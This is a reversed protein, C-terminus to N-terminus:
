AVLAPNVAGMTRKPVLLPAAAILTEAVDDTLEYRRAAIQLLLAILMQERHEPRLKKSAAELARFAMMRVEYNPDALLAAILYAHKSYWDLKELAYVLTGRLHRYREDRILRVLDPVAQNAGLDRLALAAGNKARIGSQDRLLNVLIPIVDKRGTDGARLSARFIADEDRSEIAGKLEEIVKKANASVSKGM